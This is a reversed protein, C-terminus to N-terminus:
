SKRYEIVNIMEVLTEINKQPFVNWFNNVHDHKLIKFCKTLKM